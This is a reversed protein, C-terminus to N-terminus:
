KEIPLWRRTLYKRLGDCDTLAQSRVKDAGGYQQHNRQSYIINAGERLRSLLESLCGSDFGQYREEMFSAESAIEAIAKGIVSVAETDTWGGTHERLCEEM